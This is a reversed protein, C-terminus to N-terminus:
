MFKMILLGSADPEFMLNEFYTDDCFRVKLDCKENVFYSDNLPRPGPPAPPARAGGLISSKYLLIKSFQGFKIKGILRAGGLYFDNGRGQINNENM